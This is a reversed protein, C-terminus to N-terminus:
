KLYGSIISKAADADGSVSLIAIDDATAIVASSLKTLEEPVYNEFSEKQEAVRQKFSESAKKADAASGCKLVIIEEATAGTSEYIVSEAIDVDALNIIMKATDIDMESLEDEYEINNRLDSAIAKIDKPASAEEAKAGCGTLAAVSLVVALIMSIKKM